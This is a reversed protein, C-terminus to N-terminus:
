SMQDDAYRMLHMLRLRLNTGEADFLEFRCTESM